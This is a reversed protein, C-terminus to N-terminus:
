DKFSEGFKTKLKEIKYSIFDKKSFFKVMEM